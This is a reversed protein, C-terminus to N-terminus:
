LEEYIRKYINEESIYPLVNEEFDKTEPFEYYYEKNKNLYTIISSKYIYVLVM